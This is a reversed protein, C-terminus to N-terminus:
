IRGRNLSKREPVAGPQGRNKITFYEKIRGLNEYLKMLKDNIATKEPETLNTLTLMKEYVKIAHSSRREKEYTEAQNKYFLKLSNKIDDRQKSSAKILVKKIIEEAKDFYGAKVYLEAEKTFYKIKDNLVVVNEGVIDMAKAADNFMSNREYIESIMEYCFKKLDTPIDEHVYKSLYDIKVFDGKNKLENEIETKTMGKKLM